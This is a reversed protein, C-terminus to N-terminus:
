LPLNSCLTMHPPPTLLTVHNLQTVITNDKNTPTICSSGKELVRYAGNLDHAEFTLGLNTSQTKSFLEEYIYIYVYIYVYKHLARGLVVSESTPMAM